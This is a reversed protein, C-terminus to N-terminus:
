AEEEKIGIARAVLTNIHCQYPTLSKIVQSSSPNSFVVSWLRQETKSAFGLRREQESTVLIIEYVWAGNVKGEQRYPLLKIRPTM